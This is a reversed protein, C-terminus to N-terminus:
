TNRMKELIKIAILNKDDLTLRNNEKIMNVISSGNDLTSKFDACRNIMLLIVPLSQYKVAYHIPKWGGTSPSEVDVNLQLVNNVLYPSGYKSIVHIPRIHQDSDCNIDISNRLIHGIISDNCKNFMKLFSGDSLMRKLDFSRFSLLRDYDEAILLADIEKYSRELSRINDTIRNKINLKDNESLLDNDNIIALIDDGSKTTSTLSVGRSVIYMIM